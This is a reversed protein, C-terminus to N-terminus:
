PRKKGVEPTVAQNEFGAYSNQQTFFTKILKETQGPYNRVHNETGFISGIKIFSGGNFNCPKLSKKFVRLHFPKLFKLKLAKQPWISWQSTHRAWQKISKLDRYLLVM